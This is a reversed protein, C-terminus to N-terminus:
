RSGVAGNMAATGVVHEANTEDPGNLRFAM